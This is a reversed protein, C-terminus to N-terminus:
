TFYSDENQLGMQCVVAASFYGASAIVYMEESVLNLLDELEAAGM